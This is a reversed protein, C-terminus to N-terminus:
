MILKTPRRNKEKDMQCVTTCGCNSCKTRGALVDEDSLHEAFTDGWFRQVILWLVMLAVIGTIAILLSNLM